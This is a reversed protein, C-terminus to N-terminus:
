NNQNTSLQKKLRLKYRQFFVATTTVMATFHSKSVGLIVATCPGIKIM